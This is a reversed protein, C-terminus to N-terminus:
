RRGMRALMDQQIAKNRRWLAPHNRGFVTMLAHWVRHFSTM